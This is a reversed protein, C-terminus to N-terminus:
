SQKLQLTNIVYNSDKRKKFLMYVLYEKNKSRYNAIFYKLDTEMDGKYVFTFSVPPNKKFFNDMITEAKASSLKEFDIRDADIHLEIVKDLCTGLMQSNGIKFSKSILTSMDNINKVSIENEKKVPSAGSLILVIFLGIFYKM